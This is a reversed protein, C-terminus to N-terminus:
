HIPIVRGGSMNVLVAVQDATIRRPQQDIIILMGLRHGSSGVLPVGAFFRMGGERDVMVPNKRM